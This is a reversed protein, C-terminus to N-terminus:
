PARTSMVSRRAAATLPQNPTRARATQTPPAIRRAMCALPHIQNGIRAKTRMMVDSTM